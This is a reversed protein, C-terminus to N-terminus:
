AVKLGQERRQQRLARIAQRGRQRRTVKKSTMMVAQAEGRDRQGQYRVVEYATEEISGGDDTNRDGVYSDSVPSDVTILDAQTIAHVPSWSEIAAVPGHVPMHRTSKAPSRTHVVQQAAQRRTHRSRSRHPRLQNAELSSAAANAQRAVLRLGAALYINGENMMYVLVGYLQCAMQLCYVLLGYGFVLGKCASSAVDRATASISELRKRRTVEDQRNNIIDEPTSNPDFYANANSFDFGQGVQQPPEM